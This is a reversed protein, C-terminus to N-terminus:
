LYRIALYNISLHITNDVIITIWSSYYEPMEKPFGTKTFNWNKLMIIYKSLRFKDMLFHTAFIILVAEKSAIFLFPLSYISCHLLCATWGKLTNKVKNRAMWDNQTIYDGWAHLLLQLM